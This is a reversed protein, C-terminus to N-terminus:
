APRQRWATPTCGALRRFVRNFHTPNDFGTALAIIDFELKTLDVTM